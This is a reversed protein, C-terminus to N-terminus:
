TPLLPQFELDQSALYQSVISGSHANKIEAVTDGDAGNYLFVHGDAGVSGFIDGNIAYQVDLVWKTHTRLTKQNRYSM